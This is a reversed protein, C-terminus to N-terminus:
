AVERAAETLRERFWTHEPDRRVREHWALSVTLGPLALPPELVRLRLSEVFSRVIREPTTLVLDSQAVLLPAALFSPARLAVLRRRGLKALAEDAGSPGRGQPSVALHSLECYRDLTLRRGVRPHGARVVCVFRDSFLKRWVIGASAARRPAVVADLTGAELAASFDERQTTVALGAHPALATLRRMLAPILLAVGYDITAIQFTRRCRDPAFSPGARVAADLGLLAERLPQALARARPTLVMRHGARALLGDEFHARLRGLARSVAPQTLGLRAAARTVSQDELLVDLVRLLNLDM